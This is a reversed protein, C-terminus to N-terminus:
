FHFDISNFKQNEFVVIKKRNEELNCVFKRVFIAQLTPGSLDIFFILLILPRLV